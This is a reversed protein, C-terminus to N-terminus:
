NPQPDNILAATQDRIHQLIWALTEDLPILPRWKLSQHAIDAIGAARMIEAKRLRMPDRRVAIISKSRALLLDLVHQVKIPQGSAINIVLNNELTEFEEICAIYARCVDRVDLFDRETELTGVVMEPPALVAEIRAIQGAFAPVVFAESQGPGTHNFPRLRVLRLGDAALACLGMEAAAKSAAYINMPALPASENLPIGPKFSAGYVESSSVFLLKCSPSAAIIARGINLAGFFNVRWTLEPDRKAVSIAAIAALHICFDPQYTRFATTVAEIDTIDLSIDAGGDQSTGLLITGPFAHTLATLLHRGVFGGAGTVLICRPPM